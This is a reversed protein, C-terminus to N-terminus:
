ALPVIKATSINIGLLPGAAPQVNLSDKLAKSADPGVSVVALEPKIAFLIPNAGLVKKAKEDYAAQADVRHIKTAGATDADLKFGRREQEPMAQVVDRLAAEIAGGDKIKAGAVFTYLNNATPGLIAIAADLEGAKLTPTVAKLLKDAQERKT